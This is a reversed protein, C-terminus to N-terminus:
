ARGGMVTRAAEPTTVTSRWRCGGDATSHDVHAPKRPLGCRLGPALEAPCLARDRLWAQFRRWPSM